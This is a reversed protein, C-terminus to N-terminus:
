TRYWAEVHPLSRQCNICSYTWFDILVVKGRLGAITLPKGAPTNLWATIARFDPAPGCNVLNTATSSCATLSTRKVGTLDNLEARVRASGQLASSYSPVDLQLSTFANFAIAVAMAILVVGGAQRVRPARRRLASVRLSLQEGAVAIVLLPVAKGIAFAATVFVATLGVKHTAGVVTIAALVPGACPVYLVGLALGLVFGGSGGSPRRTRVRAFPRELLAGLPPILYGLGVLALLAIGADRLSDEPLHLLSIIESGALILLSFSLILGGIVALPRALGVRRPPAGAPSAPRSPGPRSPGPESATPQTAGAQTAGAVLVVPLVPLICPSIGALLGAVAGVLILGIM